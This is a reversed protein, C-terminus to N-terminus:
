IFPRKSPPKAITKKIVKKQRSLESFEENVKDTNVKRKITSLTPDKEILQALMALKVLKQHNEPRKLDVYLKDWETLVKGDETRYKESTIFDLTEQAFEKSIPIGDFDKTKLKDQLTTVVSNQFKVKQEKEQALKAAQAKQKAEFAAEEKKVLVKHYRTATNELDAYQELREIEAVIDEEDFGQLEMTKRIVHKQNEEKSLDLERVNDIQNKTSYYEKPSVGDVFIAQFADAYEKGKSSLFNQLMNSASKKSEYVFRDKFDEPTEIVPVEDGEDEDLSFLGLKFLDKSLASWTNDEEESQDETDESSDTEEPDKESDEVVEEEEEEPAKDEEEEDAIYEAFLEEGDPEPLEEEKKKIPAKEQKKVPPKEIPTKEVKKPDKGGPTDSYFDDLLQGAEAEFDDQIDFNLSLEERDVAM